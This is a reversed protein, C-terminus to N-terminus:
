NGITLAASDCTSFMVLCADPLKGPFIPSGSTYCSKQLGFASKLVGLMVPKQVTLM